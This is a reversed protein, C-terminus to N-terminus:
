GVFIEGIGLCWFVVWWLGVGFSCSDGLWLKVVERGFIFNRKKLVIYDIDVVGVGFCVIDDVLVFVLVNVIFCVCVWLGM